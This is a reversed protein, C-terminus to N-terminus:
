VLGIVLVGYRRITDGCACDALKRAVFTGTSCVNSVADDAFDWLRTRIQDHTLIQNPHQM